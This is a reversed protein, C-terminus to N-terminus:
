CMVVKRKILQQHCLSAFLNLLAGEAGPEFGLPRCEDSEEGTAHATVGMASCARQSAGCCRGLALANKLSLLITVRRTLLPDGPLVPSM